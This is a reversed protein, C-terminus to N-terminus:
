AAIPVSLILSRDTDVGGVGGEEGAKSGHKIDYIIAAGVKKSCNGCNTLIAPFM